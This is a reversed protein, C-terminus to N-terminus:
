PMAGPDSTSSRSQAESWSLLDSVLYVVRGGHRRYRPGKGAWRWRDLTRPRLGLLLAASPSDLFAIDPSRAELSKTAEIYAKQTRRM